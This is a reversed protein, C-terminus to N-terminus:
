ELNNLFINSDRNALNNQPNTMAINTNQNSNNPNVSIRNATVRPEDVQRSLIERYFTEEESIIYHEYKVCTDILCVLEILIIVILIM